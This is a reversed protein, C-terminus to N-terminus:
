GAPFRNPMLKKKTLYSFFFPKEDADQL